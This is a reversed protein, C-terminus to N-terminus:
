ARRAWLLLPDDEPVPRYAIARHRACYVGQEVPQGCCHIPADGIPWRCSDDATELFGIPVTGELADWVPSSFLRAQEPDLAPQDAAGPEAADEIPGRVPMLRPLNRRGKLQLKNAQTMCASVTVGAGIREAIKFRSMGDVWLARLLQNREATWINKRAGM